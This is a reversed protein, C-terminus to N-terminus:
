TKDPAAILYAREEDIQLQSRLTEPLCRHWKRLEPWNNDRLQDQSNATLVCKADVRSLLFWLMLIAIITGKGVGHGARVSHRPHECFGRLFSDQWAELQPKREPNAIGAPLFGLVGTAFRHPSHRSGLWALRWPEQTQSM